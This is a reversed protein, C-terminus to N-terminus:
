FISKGGNWGTRKKLENFAERVAIALQATCSTPKSGCRIDKFLEEIEEVTKGEVVRAIAALNGPCGGFFTVNTIVNGNIDFEIKRTCTGVTDFSYRM